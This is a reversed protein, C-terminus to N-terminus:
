ARHESNLELAIMTRTLEEQFSALVTSIIERVEAVSKGSRLLSGALNVLNEHHARLQQVLEDPIASSDFDRVLGDVVAEAQKETM